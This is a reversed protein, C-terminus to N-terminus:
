RFRPPPDVSVEGMPLSLINFVRQCDEERSATYLDRLTGWRLAGSPNELTRLSSVLVTPHASFFFAVWINEFTGLVERPTDLDGVLRLSAPDFGANENPAGVVLIHRDRFIKQIVGAEMNKFREYDVIFITSIRPDKPDYDVERASPLHHLPKGDEYLEEINAQIDRLLPLEEQM